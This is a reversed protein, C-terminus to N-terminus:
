TGAVKYETYMIWKDGKKEYRCNVAGEEIRKACEKKLDSEDTDLPFKEEIIKTEPM